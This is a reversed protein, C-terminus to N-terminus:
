SGNKGGFRSTWADLTTLIFDQADTSLLRWFRLLSRETIDKAVDSDGPTFSPPVIEDVLLDAKTIGLAASLRAMWRDTLQREGRELRNIQQASTGGVKTALQELTLRRKVRWEHIRNPMFHVHGSRVPRDLVLITM